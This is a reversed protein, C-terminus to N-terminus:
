FFYFLTLIYHIICYILYFFVRSPLLLLIVSASSLILSTSSLITSTFSVSLFLFFSNFSILIVESAEPVINFVGINSDYSDWFFFVCLFIMLFYKLLYYNFVDRLHPLFCDGLDLFGLSDWVPYVWPSVGWSM